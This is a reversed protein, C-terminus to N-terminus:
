VLFVLRQRKNLVLVARKECIMHLSMHCILMGLPLFIFLQSIHFLLFKEINLRRVGFDELCVNLDLRVVDLKNHSFRNNVANDGILQQFHLM